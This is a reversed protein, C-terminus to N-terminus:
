TSIKAVACREKLKRLLTHLEGTDDALYQSTNAGESVLMAPTGTVDRMVELQM